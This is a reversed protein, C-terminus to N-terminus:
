SPNTRPTAAILKKCFADAAAEARSISVGSARFGAIVTGRILQIATEKNSMLGTCPKCLAVDSPPEGGAMKSVAKAEAEKVKFLTMDDAERERGCVACRHKM